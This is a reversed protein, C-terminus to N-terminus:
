PNPKRRNLLTLLTKTLPDAQEPIENPIKEPSAEPSSSEIADQSFRKYLLTLEQANPRYGPISLMKELVHSISMDLEQQHQWARRERDLENKIKQIEAHTQSEIKQIEMDAQAKTKRVEAEKEAIQQELGQIKNDLEMKATNERDQLRIGLLKPDGRRQVAIGVITFVRAVDHHKNHQQIIHQTLGDQDSEVTNEQGIIEDHPHKKIFERADIQIHSFLTNIPDNLRMAKIPEQVYYSVSLGVSIEAGDLTTETIEPLANARIRKDVYNELYSGPELQNYGGKASIFDGDSTTLVLYVNPDPNFYTARCIWNVRRRDGSIVINREPFSVLDPSRRQGWYEIWRRCLSRNNEQMM